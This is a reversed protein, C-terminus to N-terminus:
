PRPALDSVDVRIASFERSVDDRVGVAIQQDGPRLVVPLPYYASESRAEEIRDDPIAINFPIKQVQTTNGDSRKTSVYLTLSGAHTGNRPLLELRGVPIEVNVPVVVAGDTRRTGTDPVARIGLPNNATQYRLAAVTATAEREDPLPLQVDDRHRVLLGKGKMRVRVDHSSGPQWDAPPSFGLSYYSDFDGLVEVMHELLRSSSRLHKGGTAKSVAELPARFNENVVSITESTAGQETLASRVDAGQNGHADISYLTVGAGNASRALQEVDRILDYRGVAREYDTNFDFRRLGIDADPSGGGFRNRWEVLLGEGPRNPIGESVYFVAKRGPVGALSLVVQQVQRISERGRAYEDAAYAQIRAKLETEEAQSSQALIGGSQGRTLEGFIQRRAAKNIDTAGTLRLANDLIRDIAQRDYLFDSYFKLSREMGVVAILDGRDLHTLAERIAAFARKRNNSSLRTHDVLIVIHARRSSTADVQEVPTFASDIRRERLDVTERAIGDAESYFNSIPMPKGDVRLEFDEPTLGVVPVGSRDSVFVEVNIVRVDMVETFFGGPADTGVTTQTEESPRLDGAEPEQAAGSVPLMVLVALLCCATFSVRREFLAHDIRVTQIRM